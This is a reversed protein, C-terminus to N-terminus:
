PLIRLANEDTSDLFKYSSTSLTVKKDGPVKAMRPWEQDVKDVQDRKTKGLWEPGVEENQRGQADGPREQNVEEAHNGEVNSPREGYVEIDELLPQYKAEKAFTAKRSIIKYM